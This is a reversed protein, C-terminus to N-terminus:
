SSLFKLQGLRGKKSGVNVSMCTIDDRAIQGNQLDGNINKVKWSINGMGVRSHDANLQRWGGGNTVGM